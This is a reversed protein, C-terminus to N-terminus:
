DHIPCIHPHPPAAIARAQREIRARRDPDAPLAAPRVKVAGTRELRTHRAKYVEGMGGAGSASLIEYPGLRTGPSLALRNDHIIRASPRCPGAIIPAHFFRNAM